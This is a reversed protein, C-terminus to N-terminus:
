PFRFLLIFFHVDFAQLLVLIEFIVDVVMGVLFQFDNLLLILLVDNFVCGLIIQVEEPLEFVFRDIEFGLVFFTHQFDAVQFLRQFGRDFVANQRQVLRGQVPVQVVGVVFQGPVM